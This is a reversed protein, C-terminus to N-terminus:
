ILSRAEISLAEAVIKHLSGADNSSLFSLLKKNLDMGSARANLSRAVQNITYINQDKLETIAKWVAASVYIQQSINYEYEQRISETLLMQTETASLGSTNTRSIIQSLSIREVVLALREYAQLQLRKTDLHDGGAQAPKSKKLAAIETLSWVVGLFLLLLGIIVVTEFTSM